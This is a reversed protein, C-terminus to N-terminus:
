AFKVRQKELWDGIPMPRALLYGQMAPCGAIRLFAAQERDEVGEAVVHLGMHSAMSLISQVIAAGQVNNPADLVFSRDIKLEYLPMRSLYGLSSYGTGFDDISFRIGLRVLENMRLITDDLNEILLGETVEFILSTPPAGTEVLIARVREVFDPQRFQRPSVNVSVSLAQRAEELRLVTLCGERIIWDGLRLILGTEEALPIFISPAVSGRTPHMWRM